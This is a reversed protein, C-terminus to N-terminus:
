RQRIFDKFWNNTAKERGSIKSILARWASALTMKASFRVWALVAVSLVAVGVLTWSQYFILLFCPLAALWHVAFFLVERALNSWHYRGKNM